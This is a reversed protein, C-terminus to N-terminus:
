RNKITELVDEADEEIDKIEEFAQARGQERQIGDKTYVCKDRAHNWRREFYSILTNWAAEDAGRLSLVAEAEHQELQKSM